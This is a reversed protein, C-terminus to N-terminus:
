GEDPLLLPVGEAIRQSGHNLAHMAGPSLTMRENVVRAFGEAWAPQVSAFQLGMIFGEQIEPPIGAATMWAHLRTLVEPDRAGADRLESAIKIMSESYGNVGAM